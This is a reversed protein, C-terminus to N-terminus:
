RCPAQQVTPMFLRKSVKDRTRPSIIRTANIAPQPEARGPWKAPPTSSETASARCLRCPRSWPQAQRSETVGRRRILWAAALLAALFLGRPEEITTVVSRYSAISGTASAPPSASPGQISLQFVHTPSLTAFYDLASLFAAASAPADDSGVPTACPPTFCLELAQVFFRPAPVGLDNAISGAIAFGDLTTNPGIPVEDGVRLGNEPDNALLVELAGIRMAVSEFAYLGETEAPVQDLSLTDYTFDLSWLDGVFIGTFGEVNTLQGDFRLSVPVAQAPLAISATLLAALLGSARLAM